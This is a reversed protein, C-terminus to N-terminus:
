ASRTAGAAPNADSRLVVLYKEITNRSLTLCDIKHRLRASESALLDALDEDGHDAGDGGLLAIILKTPLGSRILSSVLAARTVDEEGYDRYGNAARRPSLLGREEYYRLMRVPVQCRRSLEGIRM